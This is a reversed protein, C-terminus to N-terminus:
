GWGKERLSFPSLAREKQSLAPTLSFVPWALLQQLLVIKL